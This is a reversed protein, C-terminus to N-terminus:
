PMTLHVIILATFCQYILTDVQRGANTLNNLLAALICQPAAQFALIKTIWVQFNKHGRPTARRDNDRQQQGM